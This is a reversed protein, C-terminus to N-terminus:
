FYSTDEHAVLKGGNEKSKKDSHFIIGGHTEVGCVIKNKFFFFIYIFQRLFIHVHVHFKVLNKDIM